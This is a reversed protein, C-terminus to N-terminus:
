PILRQISLYIYSFITSSAAIGIISIYSIMLFRSLNRRRSANENLVSIIGVVPAIHWSVFGDLRGRELDRNVRSSDNRNIDKVGYKLENLIVSFNIESVKKVENLDENKIKDGKWFFLTKAARDNVFEGEDFSLDLDIVNFYNRSKAFFVGGLEYSREKSANFFRSSYSRASAFGLLDLQCNESVIIPRFEGADVGVVVFEINSNKVVIPSYNKVLTRM